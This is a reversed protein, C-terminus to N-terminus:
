RTISNFGYHNVYAGAADQIQSQPYPMIYRLVPFTTPVEGIEKAVGNEVISVYGGDDCRVYGFMSNCVEGKLRNTNLDQWDGFLSHATWSKPDYNDPRGKEYLSHIHLMPIEKNPFWDVDLNAYKEVETYIDVNINDWMEDTAGDTDYLSAIASANQFNCQAGQSAAVGLMRLFSYFVKEGYLNNRVLDKWRMNEGAFEFFREDLVANLFKTKDSAAASVYAEVKDAKNASNKFARERVAKLADQAKQGNAGNVGNELENIAEAYMLLVDAYRMYPFNIGTNGESDKGRSGAWLKSWKANGVNYANPKFDPVGKNTYEWMAFIYDRRMDESDFLFRALPHLKAGGDVKGYPTLASTTNEDPASVKYGHIYGINGSNGRTFPIEFIPDDNTPAAIGRCEDAFVQIYSKSLTHKGSTIVSDCYEAAIKYYDTYNSIRDMKGYSDGDPMLTYGGCTMALRAIQAWAFEKSARDAGNVEAFKMDPAVKIIDQILTDLIEHRDVIPFLEQDKGDKNYTPELSFPVDGYYWILEHYFMTRIVVAEGLMQLFEEDGEAYYESKRINDIFINCAEAGAYLAKWLNADGHERDMDFRRFNNGSAMDSSSSTFELDSNLTFNNLLKNGWLNGDLMRAYLGNLAMKADDKSSFVYDFDYRSPSEVDLYDDCSAFGVALVGALLINRLKM